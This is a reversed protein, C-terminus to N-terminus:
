ADAAEDLLEIWREIVAEESLGQVALRAQQGLHAAFPKNALVQHICDVWAATDQTSEIMPLLMGYPAAEATRLTYSGQVSDPALIERPGTPCDASLLPVGCAGAECLALPFGEWASPFVFLQSRAVYAHPNAVFGMFYVDYSGVPLGGTGDDAVFASLGLERARLVLAERREGNGLVLLRAQQGRGHLAKLMDLLHIQRKQPALRGVTVMVPREFIQEHGVPLAEASKEGLATCNLFNRMVRANKVGLHHELEQVIGASVGVTAFGKNYLWPFIVRRRLWQVKPSVNKDGLVTGHVVMVKGASSASLLNLWNAGDMHSMVVDFKLRRVLQRLHWARALLRGVPGLWKFPWASIVHLPLGTDYVRNSADLVAEEIDFHGRLGQAHDFFVKEAGGPGFNTILMLVRLKM